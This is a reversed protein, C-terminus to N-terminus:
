VNFDYIHRAAGCPCVLVLSSRGSRGDSDVCFSFLQFYEIRFFFVYWSEHYFLSLSLFIHVIWAATSQKSKVNNSICESVCFSLINSMKKWQQRGQEGAVSAGKQVNLSKSVCIYRTEHVCMTTTPRGDIDNITRCSYNHTSHSFCFVLAALENWMIVRHLWVVTVFILNWLKREHALEKRQSNSRTSLMASCEFTFSNLLRRPSFLTLTLWHCMYRGVTSHLTSFLSPHFIWQPFSKIPNFIKVRKADRRRRWGEWIVRESSFIEVIRLEKGHLLKWWLSSILPSHSLQSQSSIQIYNSRCVEFVCLRWGFVAVFALWGSITYFLFLLQLFFGLVRWVETSLRFVRSDIKFIKWIELAEELPECAHHCGRRM